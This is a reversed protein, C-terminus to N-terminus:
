WLFTGIEHRRREKICGQPSPKGMRADFDEGWVLTHSNFSGADQTINMDSHRKELLQFWSVTNGSQEIVEGATVYIEQERM